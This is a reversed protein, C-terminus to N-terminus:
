LGFVGVVHRGFLKTVSLPKLGSDMKAGNGRGEQGQKQIIAREYIRSPGQGSNGFARERGWQM